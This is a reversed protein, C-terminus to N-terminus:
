IGELNGINNEKHAQIGAFHLRHSVRDHSFLPVEKTSSLLEQQRFSVPFRSSLLYFKM